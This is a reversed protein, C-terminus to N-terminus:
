KIFKELYNFKKTLLGNKCITANKILIDNTNKLLKPLIKKILENGFDESANKPLECPLNDVAMVAIVDKKQFDDEKETIPNYGYIPNKISSPRITSAIPGNIDCSIDGVVKINFNINKADKKSFLYPSGEAYYHGAIFIDAKKAFKM